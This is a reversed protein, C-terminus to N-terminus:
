DEDIFANLSQIADDCEPDLNLDLEATKVGDEMRKENTSGALPTIGRMQALKYIVQAPTCSTKKALTVLTPHEILSPSGTLTWFSQYQIGDELCFRCVEKDWHNGEYWRNQVVQVKRIEHLSKILRPDYANSLGIVRTKGEDQLQMLTRWAEITEKLTNLPSHLIYSDLYNTRLNKLSVQFSSLIQERVSDKPDYPLPKSTDQGTISTFKTQLFLAERKISYTDQLVVLADGVLDERYHKPQCATDIARFGQLVAKIVLDTTREKKKPNDVM